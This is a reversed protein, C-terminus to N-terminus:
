VSVLLAHKDLKMVYMYCVANCVSACLSSRHIERMCSPNIKDKGEGTQKTKDGQAQPFRDKEKLRQTSFSDM